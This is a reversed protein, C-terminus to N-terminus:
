GDRKKPKGLDLVEALKDLAGLLAAKATGPRVALHAALDRMGRGEGCVFRVVSYDAESMSESISRLQRSARGRAETFADPASGGDVREQLFSPSRQSGMMREYLMRFHHGARAQTADISGIHELRVLPSENSNRAAIVKRPNRASERSGRTFAPNDVEAMRIEIGLNRFQVPQRQRARYGVVPLKAFSGCAIRVPKEGDAGERTSPTGSGADSHTKEFM